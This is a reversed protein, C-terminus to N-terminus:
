AREIQAPTRRMLVKGHRVSVLAHGQSRVMEYDDPASLILLNAPRGAELGYRDGLNLARASNDTILDMSRKLDEYGPQM